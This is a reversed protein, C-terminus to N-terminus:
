DALDESRRGVSQASVTEVWNEVRETLLSLPIQGTALVTDHFARVDFAEGLREEASRRLAVIHNKGIQYATAQGPFVVYREIAPVIDGMSNPTNQSLYEIAEERTWGQAHLGTDVVLRCARWLEMALRGANLYPDEYLGMEVPLSEAYLGWGEAYATYGIFSRFPPLEGSEQQISRQLHHGPIGEHYALTAMQYSPMDAMNGMNAYYVAPRSGDPAANEYFAKGAGAERFPEVRRVVIDAQPLTGFYEPLRERVDDIIATARQIYAERGVDDNSYYFQPDERLFAFFEQLTGDFEVQAMIARMEDHIRDVEELGTQHVETATLDTTTFGVLLDNYFAEGDPLDAVGDTTTSRSRHDAMVDSLRAYVPAFNELLATRARSLLADKEEQSIDLANVKRQIDGWLPHDPGDDFPAGSRLGTVTAIVREYVWAPAQIGMEFRAEAEDIQVGLLQDIAELRQIYAEAHEVSSVRHQGILFALIGTHPGFLQNFVYGHRHFDFSDEARQAEFEFLRWSMQATEDLAEFDFNARMYALRQQGITHSELAAAESPDNWRGYDEDIIGLSTKFAPFRTLDEQFIEGFWTNLRDTETQVTGSAELGTETQASAAGAPLGAVLLVASSALALQRISKLKPMTKLERNIDAWVMIRLLYRYVTQCM